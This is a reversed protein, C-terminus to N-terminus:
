LPARMPGFNSSKRENTSLITKKKFGKKKQPGGEGTGSPQNPPKKPPSFVKPSFFYVSPRRHATVCFRRTHSAWLVRFRPATNTVSLRTERLPFSTKFWMRFHSLAHFYSGLLHGKKRAQSSSSTVKNKRVHRHNVDSLQKEPRPNPVTEISDCTTHWSWNPDSNEDLSFQRILLDRLGRFDDPNLENSPPTFTFKKSVHCHSFFLRSAHM